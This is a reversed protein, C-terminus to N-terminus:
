WTRANSRLWDESEAGGLEQDAYIGFSHPLMPDNPRRPSDSGRGAALVDGGRDTLLVVTQPPRAGSDREVRVLGDALADEWISLRPCSTRWAEMVDAYPRPGPALWELFDLTLALAPGHPLSNARDADRDRAM